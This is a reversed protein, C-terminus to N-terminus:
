YVKDLFCRVLREFEEPVDAPPVAIEPFTMATYRSLRDLFSPTRVYRFYTGKNRIGKRFNWRNCKSEL